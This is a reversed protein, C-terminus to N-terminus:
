GGKQEKKGGQLRQGRVDDVLRPADDARLESVVQGPVGSWSYTEEAATNCMVYGEGKICVSTRETDVAGPQVTM